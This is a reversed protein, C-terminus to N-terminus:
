RIFSTRRNRLDQADYVAFESNSFVPVVGTLAAARKLVYYDIPLQLTDALRSPLFRPEM